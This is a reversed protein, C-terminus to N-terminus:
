TLLNHLTQSRVKALDMMAILFDRSGFNKGSKRLIGKEPDGGM